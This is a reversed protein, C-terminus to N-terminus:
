QPKLLPNACFARSEQLEQYAYQRARERGIENLMQTAVNVFRNALKTEKTATDDGPEIGARQYSGEDVGLKIGGVVTEAQFGNNLLDPNGVTVLVGQYDASSEIDRTSSVSYILSPKGGPIPLEWSIRLITGDEKNEIDLRGDTIGAVDFGAAALGETIAQAVAADYARHLEMAAELRISSPANELAAKQETYRKAIETFKMNRLSDATRNMKDLAEVVKKAVPPADMQVAAIRGAQVANFTEETIARNEISFIREEMEAIQRKCAQGLLFEATPLSEIDPAAFAGNATFALGIIALSASTLKNKM